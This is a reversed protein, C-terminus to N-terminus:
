ARVPVTKTIDADYGFFQKAQNRADLASTATVAYIVEFGRDIVTVEYNPESM